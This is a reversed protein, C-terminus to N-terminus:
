QNDDPQVLESVERFRIICNGKGFSNQYFRKKASSFDKAYNKREQPCALMGGGSHCGGTAITSYYRYEIM